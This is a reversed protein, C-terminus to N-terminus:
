YAKLFDIVDELPVSSGWDTYNNSAFVVGTVNGFVNVMPSGSNGPFITINTQIASREIFCFPLSIFGLNVDEISMGPGKCDKPAVEQLFLKINAKEKLFGSTMNLAEGMPYGIAWNQDGVEWSDALSLGGYGALGEVLCLDNKEYVELVRRPILRGSNQKESVLVIGDKQLECVHANTLTYVRGSPAIVQFGTATGQNKAGAPAQIFVVQSGVKHFLYVNHGNKAALASIMVATVLLLPRFITKAIRVLNPIKELDLADSVAAKLRKLPLRKFLSQITKKLRKLTTKISRM